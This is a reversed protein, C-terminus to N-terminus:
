EILAQTDLKIAEKKTSLKSLFFTKSKPYAPKKIPVKRHPKAGEAFINSNALISAPKNPPKIPACTIDITASM